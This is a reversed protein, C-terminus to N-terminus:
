LCYFLCDLVFYKIFRGFLIVSCFLIFYFLFLMICCLGFPELFPFNFANNNSLQNSLYRPTIQKTSITSPINFFPLFNCFSLFFFFFGSIFFYIYHIFFYEVFKTTKVRQKTQCKFLLFLLIRENLFNM